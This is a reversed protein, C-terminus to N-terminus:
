RGGRKKPGLAPEYYSLPAREDYGKSNVVWQELADRLRRNEKRTEVLAVRLENAESVAMNRQTETDLLRRQLALLDEQPTPM